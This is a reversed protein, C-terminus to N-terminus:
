GLAVLGAGCALNVLVHWGVLWAVAYLFKPSFVTWVFLHTRLAACALMTALTASSLFLTLHTTHTLYSFWTNNSSAAPTPTSTPTSIVPAAAPDTTTTDTIATTTTPSDETASNTNLQDSAVEAESQKSATATVVSGLGAVSFWVPGAWNGLFLLLGVM